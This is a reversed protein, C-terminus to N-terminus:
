CQVYITHELPFLEVNKIRSDDNIDYFPDRYFHFFSMDWRYRGIDIFDDICDDHEENSSFNVVDL